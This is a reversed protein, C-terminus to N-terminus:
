GNNLQNVYVYVTENEIDKKVDTVEFQNSTYNEIDLSIKEGIGPVQGGDIEGIKKPQGLQNLLIQMPM